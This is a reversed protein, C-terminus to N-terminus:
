PAAAQRPASMASRFRQECAVVQDPAVFSVTAPQELLLPSFCELYGPPPQREHAMLRSGSLLPNRAIVYDNLGLVDIINLWPVHYGVVGVSSFRMLPLGEGPPPASEGRPVSQAVLYLHFVKHEQHRVGVARDILWFQMSDYWGVYGRMWGPAWPAVAALEDAVAVKLFGTESRTTYRQSAAWHLWPIPWSLAIAGALISAAARPGLRLAGLMWVFAAILLPPLHSYVRFEFHDGGILFTYYGVHALLTLAVAPAAWRAPALAAALSAPPRPPGARLLRRLASLAVALLLALWIWLGYEVIFSLLFRGGSALRDIETQSKAFYTNPLWEGYFSRRWLLHAGILLLPAACLPDAPALRGARRRAILALGILGASVAAFLLGDPRALALLAAALALGFMWPREGAALLLACCVWLTVLCNFLATELGSSTWALFTRNTLLGLLALALILLRAPRLAPAAAARLVLAATLLLNAAACLLAIVNASEPPPAGTLRWVVDLLLVWLFSTYGEVPRFPPMNWVYGYGLLSNGVYRFSIYADDTLFWFLRWGAALGALAAAGILILAARERGRLPFSM